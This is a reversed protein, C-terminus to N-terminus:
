RVVFREASAVHQAHTERHSQRVEREPRQHEDQRDDDLIRANARQLSVLKARLGLEGLEPRMELRVEEEVREVGDCPQHGLIRALRAAQEPIEAIQQSVGHPGALLHLGEVLLYVPQAAIRLDQLRAVGTMQREAPLDAVAGRSREQRSKEQLRQDLVRHLM